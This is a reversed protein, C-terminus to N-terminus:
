SPSIVDLYKRRLKLDGILYCKPLNTRDDEREGWHTMALVNAELLLRLAEDYQSRYYYLVLITELLM